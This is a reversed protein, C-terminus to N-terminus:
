FAKLCGRLTDAKHDLSENCKLRSMSGKVEWFRSHLFVFCFFPGVVVESQQVKEYNRQLRLSPHRLFGRLAFGNGVVTSPRDRVRM